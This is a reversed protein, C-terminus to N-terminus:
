AGRRRCPRHGEEFYQPEPLVSPLSRPFREPQVREGWSRRAGGRCLGSRISLGPRSRGGLAIKATGTGKLHLRPVSNPDTQERLKGGVQIDRRSLDFFVRQGPFRWQVLLREVSQALEDLLVGNIGGDAALLSVSDVNDDGAIETRLRRLRALNDFKAVTIQIVDRASIVDDIRARATRVDPLDQQIERDIRTLDRDIEDIRDSISVREAGLQVVTGSLEGQRLRIKSIEAAAGARLSDVDGECTIVAHEGRHVPDAGCGLALGTKLHGM